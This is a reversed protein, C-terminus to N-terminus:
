YSCSYTFNCSILKFGLISDDYSQYNFTFTAKNGEADLGDWDLKRATADWGYDKKLKYYMCADINEAEEIDLEFNFGICFQLYSYDVFESIEFLADETNCQIVTDESTYIDSYKSCGFKNGHATYTDMSLYCDDEISVTTNETTMVLTHEVAGNDAFTSFSSANALSVGVVATTALTSIGTLTLLKFKKKM